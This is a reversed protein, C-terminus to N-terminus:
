PPRGGNRDAQSRSNNWSMLPILLGHRRKEYVSKPATASLAIHPLPDHRDEAQFGEMQFHSESAPARAGADGPPGPIATARQGSGPRGRVAAPEAARRVGGLGEFRVACRSVQTGAARFRTGPSGESGSGSPRLAPCFSCPHRLMGPPTALLMCSRGAPMPSIAASCGRGLPASWPRSCPQVYPGARGVFM